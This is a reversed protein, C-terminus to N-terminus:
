AEVYSDSPTVITDYKKLENNLEDHRGALIKDLDAYFAKSHDMHITHTLEHAVVFEILRDPLKMLQVNLCIRGDSSCSGWKSKMDRLDVKRYKLRNAKAIREVMKPLVEAAEMMYARGIVKTVFEQFGLGRVDLDPPYVVSVWEGGITASAKGDKSTPMMRLRRRRTRFEVGPEFYGADASHNARVKELMKSIPEENSAIFRRIDNDSMGIPATVRLRLDSGIRLIIRTMRSRETVIVEGYPKMQFTRMGVASNSALNDCFTPM